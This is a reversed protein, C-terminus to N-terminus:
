KKRSVLCLFREYFVVPLCNKLFRDTGQLLLCELVVKCGHRLILLLQSITWNIKITLSLSICFLKIVQFIHDTTVVPQGKILWLFPGSVSIPVSIIWPLGM